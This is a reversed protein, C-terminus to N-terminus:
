ESWKVTSEPPNTSGPNTLAPDTRDVVCNSYEKEETPDFDVFGTSDNQKHQYTCTNSALDCICKSPKKINIVM